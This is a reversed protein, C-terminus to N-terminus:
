DLSKQQFTVSQLQAVSFLQGISTIDSNELDVSTPQKHLLKNEVNEDFSMGQFLLKRNPKTTRNCDNMVNSSDITSHQLECAVNITVIDLILRFVFRFRLFWFYSDVTM